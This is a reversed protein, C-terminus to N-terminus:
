IFYEKANKLFSLDNKNIERLDNIGYYSVYTRSLGLGWALVPIEKGLLPVVVEPRFIGSGGLEFWQKHLPHFVEIEMSPETYPFHAPRMRIKEYGMKKFFETLYGKLHKMNANEDIVIGECHYFEFLHKWDLVENRFVKGVCFYKGPIDDKKLKHLTQASLVTTHTRLLLRKAEEPNWKYRWGKSGVIGREHTEEIKKALKTDEIIGKKKLYFTDQMERAPHDQPVFLVDLDWFATQINTGIMEKFGMDLFIRKVYDIVTNEFHKKGGFIKPVDAKIDYSRFKKNKWASNRLINEDIRNIFNKDNIKKGSILRIKDEPIIFIEKKIENKIINKRKRLESYAFRDLESLSNISVPFTSKLFELEPYKSLIKKGNELIRVIKDKRIEIALRRKLIGLCVMLEDKDLNAKKQIEEITLDNKEIATLFRLEPLGQKLYKIGNVDLNIIESYKEEINILSKNKLWQVARMVEVEQMGTKKIIDTVSINENLFPLLKRELPHLKKLIDEM